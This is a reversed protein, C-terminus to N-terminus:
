LNFHVALWVTDADPETRAVRHRCQSPLMIYDGPYLTVPTREAAFELVASGSLLVVWEDWAQDYWEGTPTAHGRSVIREIKVGGSAQLTEFLEEPLEDPIHEFLNNKM